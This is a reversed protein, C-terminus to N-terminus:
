SCFHDTLLRKQVPVMKPYSVVISRVLLLVVFGATAVMLSMIVLLARIKLQRSTEFEFRLVRCYLMSRM